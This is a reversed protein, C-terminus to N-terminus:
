DYLPIKYRVGNVIAELYNTTTISATAAQRIPYTASGLAFDGDYIPQACSGLAIACSISATSGSLEGIFTNGNGSVNLCGSKYGIFSNDNGITTSYGSIHGIFTNRSGTNNSSGSNQGIFTNSTGTSNYFGSYQGIFTNNDAVNYSGSQYGLFTNNTGSLNSIGSDRGIFTNGGGTTNLSGSQYGLFTNNCGTTNCFGAQSGIFTNYNAVNAFGSGYGVFTNYETTTNTMGSNVGIFTNYSGTAGVLFTKNLYVSTDTFAGFSDFSSGNNVQFSHTVGSPSGGSGTASNIWSLQGSGDTSLVQGNIGNTTPFTNSYTGNIFKITSAQISFTSSNIISAGYLDKWYSATSGLDTINNGSPIVASEYSFPVGLSIQNLGNDYWINNSGTMSVSSLQVIGNVSRYFATDDQVNLFFEGIYIDNATWTGDTHDDSPPISPTAGAVYSRKERRRYPLIKDAM